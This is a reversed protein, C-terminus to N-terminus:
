GERRAIVGWPDTMVPEATDWVELTAEDVFCRRVVVEGTHADVEAVRARGSDLLDIAEHIVEGAEPDGAVLADRGDWLEEIRATLDAM